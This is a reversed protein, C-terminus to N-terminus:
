RSWEPEFLYPHVEEMGLMLSTELLVKDDESLETSYCVSDSLVSNSDTESFLNPSDGEAVTFVITVSVELICM